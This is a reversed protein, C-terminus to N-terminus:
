SLESFNNLKTLLSDIKAQVMEKQKAQRGEVEKKSQLEQNLEAIQYQLKQNSLRLNKNTELLHDIKEKLLGIQSYIRAINM